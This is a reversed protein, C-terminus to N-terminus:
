WANRHVRAVDYQTRSEKPEDGHGIAIYCFPVAGEPIGLIQRAEAVRAMNPYVGCWVSGLGLATAALLINETAASLDEVWFTDNGTPVGCPVICVPVTPLMKAYPHGEALAERKAQDTVVIFAWPQRNNASPAAMAAQLLTTVQEETVPEQTYRRISRRAFLDPITLPRM